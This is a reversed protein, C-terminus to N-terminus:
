DTLASYTAADKAKPAQIVVGIRSKLDDISAPQAILKHKHLLSALIGIEGDDAALVPITAARGTCGEYITNSGGPTVLLDCSHHWEYLMEVNRRHFVNGANPEAPEDPLQGWVVDIRWSHPLAQEVQRVIESLHINHQVSTGGSIVCWNLFRDGLTKNRLEISRYEDFPNLVFGCYILKRAHKSLYPHISETDIISKEGAILIGAFRDMLPDSLEDELFGSHTSSLIVPRLLLFWRCELSRIFPKLEEKQGFPRYDVIAIDPSFSAFIASLISERLLRIKRHPMKALDPTKSASSDAGKAQQTPLRVHHIDAPLVLHIKRHSTVVLCQHGADTLNRALIAIRTSHGLGDDGHHFVLIKM